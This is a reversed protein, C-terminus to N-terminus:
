TTYKCPALRLRANVISRNAASNAMSAGGRRQCTEKTLGKIVLDEDPLVCWHSRSSRNAGDDVFKGRIREYSMLSGDYFTIWDNAAYDQSAFLGFGADPDIKSRDTHVGDGVVALPEVPLFKPAYCRIGSQRCGWRDHHSKIWRFTINWRENDSDYEVPVRCETM